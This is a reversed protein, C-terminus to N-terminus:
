EMEHQKNVYDDTFKLLKEKYKNVVDIAKQKDEPDSLDKIDKFISTEKNTNTQPNHAIASSSKFLYELNDDDTSLMTNIKAKFDKTRNTMSLYGLLNSLQGLESDKYAKQNEESAFSDMKNQFYDNSILMKVLADKKKDDVINNIADTINNMREVKDKNEGYINAFNFNRLYHAKGNADRHHIGGMFGAGFFGSLAGQLFDFNKQEDQINTKYLDEILNTVLNGVRKSSDIDYM